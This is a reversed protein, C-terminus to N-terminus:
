PLAGGLQIGTIQDLNLLEFISALDPGPDRIVVTGGHERLSDTAALISRVAAMGLFSVGNVDLVLPSSPPTAGAVHAIAHRLLEANALDFEGSLEVGVGDEVSRTTPRRGGAPTRRAVCGVSDTVALHHGVSLSLNERVLDEGYRCLASFPYRSCLDALEDEIALYEVVSMQTLAEEAAGCVRVGSYGETLATTIVSERVHPAYLEEVSAARLQGSSRLARVDLRHRAALRQMLLDHTPQSVGTHIVQERRRLGDAMWDAVASGWPHHPVLLAHGTPLGPEDARESHAVM